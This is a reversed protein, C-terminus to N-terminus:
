TKLKGTAIVKNDKGVLQYVYETGPRLDNLEFVTTNTYPNPQQTNYGMGKKDPQAAEHFVLKVDKSDQQFEVWVKSSRLETHGIMPGSVILNSNQAIVNLSSFLLIFLFFRQM